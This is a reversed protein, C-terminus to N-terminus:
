DMVVIKDLTWTPYQSVLDDFLEQGTRSSIKIDFEEPGQVTVRAAKDTLTDIIYIDPGGDFEPSKFRGLAVSWASSAIGNRMLVERVQRKSADKWLLSGREHEM